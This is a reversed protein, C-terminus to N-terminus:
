SGGRLYDLLRTEPITRATMQDSELALHRGFYNLLVGRWVESRTQMLELPNGENDETAKAATLSRLWRRANGNSARLSKEEALRSQLWRYTPEAASRVRSLGWEWHASLDAMSASQLEAAPRRRIARAPVGALERMFRAHWLQVVRKTFQMAPFADQLNQYLEWYSIDPNENAQSRLFSAQTISLAM